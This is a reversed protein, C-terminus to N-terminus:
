TTWGNVTDIVRQVEDDGIEPYCPLTLIEEVLSETVPLRVEAFVKGFVPQRHDPIPYHVDTAVGFAHLHRRLSERRSTRVVYLHAVYGSDAATPVRIEPHVIAASYRNAVERRRRNDNDLYPLLASLVAAQLEDLRSNTAGALEV